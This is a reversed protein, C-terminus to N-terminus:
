LNGTIAPEVGVLELLVLATWVLRLGHWGGRRLGVRGGSGRSCKTWGLLFVFEQTSYPLSELKQLLSLRSRQKPWMILRTTLAM